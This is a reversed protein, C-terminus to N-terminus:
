CSAPEGFVRTDTKSERDHERLMEIKGEPKRKRERLGQHPPFGVPLNCTARYLPWTAIFSHRPGYGIPVQPRGVAMCTLKSISRKLGGVTMHTLQAPSGGGPLSHSAQLQHRSQLRTLSGSDSLGLQAM